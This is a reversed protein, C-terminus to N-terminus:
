YFIYNVLDKCPTDKHVGDRTSNVIDWSMVNGRTNRILSIDYM